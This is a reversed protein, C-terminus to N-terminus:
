KLKGKKGGTALLHPESPLFSLCFVKEQHDISLVNSPKNDAGIEWVKVTKEDSGTAFVNPLDPSFTLAAVGSGHAGLRFIPGQSIKLADYYKVMGDETAVLFNQPSHPNWALCEVDVAVNGKAVAAPSRVDLLAFTKDFSGTLLVNTEQPNWRVSQVKDTHHELTEICQCTNVDWLKVRTDASGSAIVNRHTANWSLSM